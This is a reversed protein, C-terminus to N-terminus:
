IPSSRPLRSMILGSLPCISVLKWPSRMNAARSERGTCWMLWWNRSTTGSPIRACCGGEIRTLDLLNGVMRTLRDSEEDIAHLLESRAADDWAVSSDLLASSSAKIVALPTRLDHSIDSLLASKFADSEALAATKAAASTLRARELALAAQTAFSTLLQEDEDRFRGEGPRGSVELVGVVHEATRIPLFLAENESRRLIGAGPHSGAASTSRHTTGGRGAVQRHEMAWAAVALTQRDTTNPLTAPFRASVKLVDGEDPLLVRSGTAGYVLVVREVITALMADLTVGSILSANLDYLLETRRQERALVETRRRFGAVLQSTVIAIGLFALLALVDDGNAVRFTHVPPVFLFNFALFALVAALAAPGPGAILALGFCLLLYILLVNLIGLHDDVLSMVGSVVAVAAIVLAYRATPTRDPFSAARASSLIQNFPPKVTARGATTQKGSIM